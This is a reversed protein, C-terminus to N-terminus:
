FFRGSLPDYRATELITPTFQNGKSMGRSAAFDASRQQCTDTLPRMKEQWGKLRDEIDDGGELAMALTLGNVLACGAGQALAPCMAHASDGVLAVKGRAWEDLHTTQYGDYRGSVKTAEELVPMLHPFVDGWVDLNIPTRSGEEDARPAMFALYLDNENCPVYLIRLVRPELNWFDILNDWQGEGLHEKRRPVLLRTIGDRSGTRAQTFGISDRVKSGVGDAGVILDAQLTEGSALTLSGSPEARIVESNVVIEVGARRAATALANHLHQRTMSRWPLGGFTEQSVIENHMRTEYAPSTMSGNMVDDIAGISELVRLGNYWLCIGAGFARLETGKEHLRVTWGRQRLAIATTLGAFGGGAIEAHLGNSKPGNSQDHIM